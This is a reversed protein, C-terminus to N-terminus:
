DSSQGPRRLRTREAYLREVLEKARQGYHLERHCNPCLAVANDITDPGRDALRVIHHVELYPRGDPFSFPAEFGCCECRGEAQSIVWAKVDANRLVQTVTAEATRPELVGAPPRPASAAPSNRVAIEFEVVPTAQIGEIEGILAEIEVAINAGVNKAPKLGPLWNRGMLSLVYSINQMRYEFSGSSRGFEAALRDFVAKKIFPEGRRQASQMQLYAQVAARLEDRRWGKGTAEEGTEDLGSFFPTWDYALSQNVQDLWWAFDDPKRGYLGFFGPGPALETKDVVLGTIGPKGTSQAWEALSKLGQRQLSHGWPGVQQLQLRDHAEKYGLYTRPDGPRVNPFHEVLTRLLARGQEDLGAVIRDKKNFFRLM